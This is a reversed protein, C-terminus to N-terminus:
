SAESEAAARILEVVAALQKDVLLQTRRDTGAAVALSFRVSPKPAAESKDNRPM